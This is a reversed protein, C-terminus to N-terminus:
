QKLLNIFDDENLITLGLELAKRQKASTGNITGIVLHTTQSSIQLRVNGGLAILEVMASERTYNELEGTFVVDYVVLRKSRKTTKSKLAAIDINKTVKRKYTIKKVSVDEQQEEGYDNDLLDIYIMACGKADNLADHHLGMDYGIHNCVTPLKYNDLDYAGKSLKLTCAFQVYPFLKSFEVYERLCSKDFGINHAVAHGIKFFPEIEHWVESFTPKDRLFLGSIGHISQNRAEVFLPEPRIYWHKENIIKSDKVEVIAISCISDRRATATEVDFAIFHNESINLSLMKKYKSLPEPYGDWVLLQEFTPNNIGKFRLVERYNNERHEALQKWTFGTPSTKIDPNYSCCIGDFSNKM